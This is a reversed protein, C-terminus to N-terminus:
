AKVAFLLGAAAAAAVGAGLMHLLVAAIPVGAFYQYYGIAGQLLEVMLLAAAFRQAKSGARRLLVLAAITLIVTIWVSISHLRAVSQIDLGTRAAGGDGSHPGSGTVVTGLWCAIMMAVFAGVSALWAPRPVQVAHRGSVHMWLKTLTVVLALSLLLHLAVVYPNLKTLVTIGGIVGQFPIGLGAVIALTRTLKDSRTRVAAVFVMIALFILVFTLLRNGFEILGHHGLAARPVYSDSECRPWTPCGLGSATLRVFAGTVIIGINGILSALTWGVLAGRTATIRDWFSLRTTSLSDM